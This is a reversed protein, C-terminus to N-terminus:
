CEYSFIINHLYCIDQYVQASSTSIQFADVIFEKAILNMAHGHGFMQVFGVKFSAGVNMKRIKYNDSHNKKMDVNQNLIWIYFKNRKGFKQRFLGIHMVITAWTKKFSM